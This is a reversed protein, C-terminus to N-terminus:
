AGERGVHLGEAFAALREIDATSLVAVIARIRDLTDERKRCAEAHAETCRYSGCRVCGLKLKSM